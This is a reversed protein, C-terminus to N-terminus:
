GCGCGFILIAVFETDNGLPVNVTPRMIGYRDVSCFLEGEGEGEGKKKAEEGYLCQFLRRINPNQRNNWAQEGSAM